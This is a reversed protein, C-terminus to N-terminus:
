GAPTTRHTRLVSQFATAANSLTRTPNTVVGLTRPPVGVPLSLRSLDSSLLTAPLVSWGLGAAVLMGITELYNTSMRTQLRLGHANFLSLVIRGTYTALGPLIAPMDSL